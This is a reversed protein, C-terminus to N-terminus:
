RMAKYIIISHASIFEDCSLGVDIDALFISSTKKRQRKEKKSLLSSVDIGKYKLVHNMGAASSDSPCSDSM